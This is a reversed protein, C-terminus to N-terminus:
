LLREFTLFCPDFAYKKQYYLPTYM